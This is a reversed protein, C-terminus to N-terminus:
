CPRAVRLWGAVSSVTGIIIRDARDHQRIALPLSRARAAEDAHVSGGRRALDTQDTRLSAWPLCVAFWRFSGGVPGAAGADGIWGCRQVHRHRRLGSLRAWGAVARDDTTWSVSFAACPGVIWKPM